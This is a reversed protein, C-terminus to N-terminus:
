IVIGGFDIYKRHVDTYCSNVANEVKVVTKDVVQVPTSAKCWSYFIGVDASM